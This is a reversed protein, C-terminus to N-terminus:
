FLPEAGGAFAAEIDAGLFVAGEADEFSCEYEQMYWRLGMALREEALFEATIRSCQDATVRWRRWPQDRSEWAEWFWGRKGFPTSLAVLEGGSVALMPRVAKYLADSIRAAEDLILLRVGAYTRIGEENDPLSVIRSGNTFELDHLTERVLALPRGMRRYLKMVKDQFFEGSQRQTPSLILTLSRPETMSVRLALAGASFSKGAQRSCLVLKRHETGRFIQSQWPDPTFGSQETLRAAFADIASTYETLLATQLRDAM